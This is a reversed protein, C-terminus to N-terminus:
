DACIVTINTITIKNSTPTGVTTDICKISDLFVATIITAGTLSDSEGAIDGFDYGFVIRWYCPEPSTVLDLVISDFSCFLDGSEYDWECSTGSRKLIIVAHNTDPTPGVPCASRITGGDAGCHRDNYTEVKYDFELKYLTCVDSPCVCPTPPPPGHCCCRSAGALSSGVSLISSGVGFLTM